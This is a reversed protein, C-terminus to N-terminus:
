PCRLQRKNINVHGISSVTDGRIKPNGYYSIILAILKLHAKVGSLLGVLPYCFPTDFLIVNVM